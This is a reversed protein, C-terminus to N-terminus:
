YIPIRNLLFIIGTQSIGTTMDAMLNANVFRSILVPNVMYPPYLHPLDEPEGSYLNGWNGEIAKFNDYIHINTNFEISM